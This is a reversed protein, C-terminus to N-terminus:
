RRFVARRLFEARGVMSLRNARVGPLLVVSGRSGAVPSFWGHITSGSQSDFAVTDANLSAPAPCIAAAVPRLLSWGPAYLGAAATVIAVAFGITMVRWTM